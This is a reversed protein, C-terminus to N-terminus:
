LFVHDNAVHGVYMPFAFSRTSTSSDSHYSLNGSYPIQGSYSIMGSHSIVGSFAIPGSFTTSTFEDDELNESLKESLNHAEENQPLHNGSDGRNDDSPAVKDGVADMGEIEISFTDAIPELNPSKSSEEGQGDEGAVPRCGQMLELEGAETAVPDEERLNGLMDGRHDNLHMAPRRCGGDMESSSYIQIDPNFSTLSENVKESVSVDIIQDRDAESIKSVREVVDRDRKGEEDLTKLGQFTELFMAPAECCATQKIDINFERAKSEESDSSSTGNCINPRDHDEYTFPKMAQSGSFVAEAAPLSCLSNNIPPKRM